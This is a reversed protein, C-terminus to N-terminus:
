LGDTNNTNELRLMEEERTKEDVYAQALADIREEAGNVVYALTLWNKNSSSIQLRIMNGESDKWVTNTHYKGPNYNGAGYLANLKSELDNYVLELDGFDNGEFTYYGMYFQAVSADRIIEGDVVPVIFRFYTKSPKYGAVTYSSSYFNVSFDGEVYDGGNYTNKYDIYSLRVVDVLKKKEVSIDLIKEVQETTSNWPINRFLILGDADPEIVEDAIRKKIRSVKEEQLASLMENIEDDTATDTDLTLVDAFAVSLLMVIAIMIGFLKKM